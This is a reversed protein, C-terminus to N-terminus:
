LFPLLPLPLHNFVVCCALVLALLLPIFLCPLAGGHAGVARQWGPAHVLGAGSKAHVTLSSILMCTQSTSMDSAELEKEWIDSLLEPAIPPAPGSGAGATSEGGAAGSSSPQPLPPASGAVAAAQGGEGEGGAEAELSAGSADGTGDEGMSGASAVELGAKKLAETAVEPLLEPVQLCASLCICPPPPM